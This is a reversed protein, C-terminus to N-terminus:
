WTQRDDNGYNRAHDLFIFPTEPTNMARMFDSHGMQLGMGYSSFLLDPKIAHLRERIHTFMEVRRQRFNKEYAAM